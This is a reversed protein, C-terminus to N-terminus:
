TVRIRPDLVGYLLDAVLNLVIVVVAVLVFWALLTPADGANLSTLFLQGMGSIAFIQETIIVGGIFFATDLAVVTVLPILTNRFAHKLVVRRMPVGKARATRIYDAHLVDLMSAREFRSWQAVSGVTLTLIPLALHRFYDLNLGKEGTTHLGISFFIPHDLHFQTKPWTVLLAIALLGFWFPPMAIGIYSLGTFTYDTISYQKVASYIGIGIAIVLAVLTGWFMLQLTPWLARGIMSSVHENTRSSTGWDGRVFGTFWRWWQLVINEDLHLRKRQEALVRATDAASRHSGSPARFRALPDFAWRMGWFTLFSAIVLVPISYVIRRILYTLM